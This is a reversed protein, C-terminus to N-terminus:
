LYTKVDYPTGNRSSKESIFLVYQRSGLLSSKSAKGRAPVPLNEPLFTMAKLPFM